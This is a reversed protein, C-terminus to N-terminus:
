VSTLGRFTLTFNPHRCLPWLPHALQNAYHRDQIVQTPSGIECRSVKDMITFEKRVKAYGENWARPYSCVIHRTRTVASCHASVGRCRPCTAPSGPCQLVAAVLRSVAASCGSLQLGQCHQLCWLLTFHPTRWYHRRLTLWHHSCEFQIHWNLVIGVFKRTHSESVM